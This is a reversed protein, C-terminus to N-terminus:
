STPSLLLKKDGKKMSRRIQIAAWAFMIALVFEAPTRHSWRPTSAIMQTAIIYVPFIFVTLKITKSFQKDKLFLVFGYSSGLLFILWLISALFNILILKPSWNFLELVAGSLGQQDRINKWYATDEPMEYLGLYRGTFTNVGTNLGLNYVDSQLTKIFSKPHSSLYGWFDEFDMEWVPYETSDLDIPELNAMRQIRRYFNRNLRSGGMAFQGAHVFNLSMWLLPILFALLLYAFGHKFRKGKSVLLITIFFIVPYLVFILRIFSAVSATFGAVVLSSFSGELLYRVSYYFSIILLPNYFAETVLTHPHVLSGPLLIYTLTAIAAVVHTRFLLQTLQYLYIVAVLGLLIQVVIVSYSQYITYAVVHFIYDGPVGRDILTDMLSSPDKFSALVSDISGMRHEARDGELFANGNNIDYLFLTAHICLFLCLVVTLYSRETKSGKKHLKMIM